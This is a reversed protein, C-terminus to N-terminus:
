NLLYTVEGILTPVQSLRGVLIVRSQDAMWLVQDIAEFSTYGLDFATDELMLNLGLRGDVLVKPIICRDVEVTLEPAQYDEVQLFIVAMSFLKFRRKRRKTWADWILKQYNANDHLLQGITVNAKQDKIDQIIISDDVKREPEIFVLIDNFRVRSHLIPLDSRVLEQRVEENIDEPIRNTEVGNESTAVAQTERPEDLQYSDSPNSEPERSERISRRKNKSNRNSGFEVLRNMTSSRTTVRYISEEVRDPLGM